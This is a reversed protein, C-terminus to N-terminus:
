KKLRCPKWNRRWHKDTQVHNARVYKCVRHQFDENFFGFETRMVFGERPGGLASPKLLEEQFFATVDEKSYFVGRWVEPVTKANLEKAIEKVTEWSAWWNGDRAGFVMYTDQEYIPDYEISHIGYIDEGYVALNKFWQDNTKWGHHKKVMAFWGEAAPTDVSRAYVDGNWLCTNGGDIKETVVIPVRLLASRAELYTDNRHVKESQPWHPTSPHKPPHDM